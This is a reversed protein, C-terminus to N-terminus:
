RNTSAATISAICIGASICSNTSVCDEYRVHVNNISFELNNIINTVLHESFTKPGGIIDTDNQLKSLARKKFARILRKNNEEDFPKFTVVPACVIHIDEM